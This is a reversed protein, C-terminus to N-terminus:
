SKHKKRSSLYNERTLLYSPHELDTPEYLEYHTFTFGIKRLLLKSATNAPNHGAFLASVPLTMFAFEIVARLAEEAYGHRWFRYCIHAGIELTDSSEDYPRLGCCGIFQQDELRFIPWYQVGRNEQLSIEGALLGRVQDRTLRGRADILATVRPDGWLYMALDIDSDRWVRFGLRGTTLFYATEMSAFYEM